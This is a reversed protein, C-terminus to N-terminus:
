SFFKVYQNGSGTINDDDTDHQRFFIRHWHRLLKQVFQELEIVLVIEYLNAEIIIIIEKGAGLALCGRHRAGIEFISEILDNIGRCGHKSLNLWKQLLLILTQM